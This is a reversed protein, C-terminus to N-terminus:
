RLAERVAPLNAEAIRRDQDAMALYGEMLEQEVKRRRWGKIAEEMLHSRSQGKERSLRDIEQLVERDLTITVKMRGAV